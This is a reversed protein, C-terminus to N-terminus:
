RYSRSRASFYPIVTLAIMGARRGPHGVRYPPRIGAHAAATLSLASPVGRSGALTAGIM